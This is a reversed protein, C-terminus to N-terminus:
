YILFCLYWRALLPEYPWLWLKELLWAHIHSSFWLFASHQLVSTKSNQHQLLSKLTGHVSLFDFWDIKFSILGSYKNSSSVSFSFSWYKAIQHSSDVQQFLGQHQSLNFASPFSPSLPCSPQIADNVWCVHTQAFESFYHLVPFGPTSCDTSDCLTLCLLQVVVFLVCLICPLEM